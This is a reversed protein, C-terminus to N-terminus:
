RSLNGITTEENNRLYKEFIKNTVINLNAPFNGMPSSFQYETDRTIKWFVHADKWANHYEHFQDLVELDESDFLNRLERFSNDIKDNYKFLFNDLYEVWIKNAASGALNKRDVGYGIKYLTNHYAMETTVLLLELQNLLHYENVNM